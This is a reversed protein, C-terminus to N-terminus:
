SPALVIGLGARYRFLRKEFGRNVMIMNFGHSINFKQVEPTTNDLYLKHHIAEFEWSKGNEWRSFRWDWYVPLIFSESDFRARLKIEPYGQQRIHLPMPLNYAGGGHLEFSWSSQATTATSSLIIFAILSIFKIWM